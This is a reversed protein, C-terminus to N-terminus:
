PPDDTDGEPQDFLQDYRGPDPEELDFVGIQKADTHEPGLDGVIIYRRSKDRRLEHANFLHHPGLREPAKLDDLHFRYFHDGIAGIIRDNDPDWLHHTNARLRYDCKEFYQTAQRTVVPMESSNSIDVLVIQQSFNGLLALRGDPSLSVNHAASVGDYHRITYKREPWDFRLMGASGILGDLHPGDLAMYVSFQEDSRM